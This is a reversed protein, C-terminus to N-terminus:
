WKRGDPGMQTMDKGARGEAGREGKEGRLGDRGDRGRKVSLRWSDSTGPKDQTAERAIWMSGDWTTVDGPVYSEDSKYVGKDVLVPMSVQKEMVRGGTLAAKIKFSRENLQEVDFEHIGEVIVSWGATEISDTVPDTTRAARILGGRFSAYTGRPYSRTTDIASLIEIQAADRGPEGTKGDRGDRGPEGILGDMGKQGAEGPAGKEGQLGQPGAEGPAGDKGNLGPEGKEGPPGMHGQEGPAGDKGDIGDRGPDGPMGKEGPLGDMGKEGQLGREGPSGDKGAPIEEIRKQFPAIALEFMRGFEANCYGKVAQFVSDALTSIDGKM